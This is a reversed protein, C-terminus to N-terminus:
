GGKKTPKVRLEFVCDLDTVYGSNSAISHKSRVVRYYGGIGLVESAYAGLAARSDVFILDGNRHLGNGYMSITVNQPLFLAQIKSAQNNSEILQEQFYKVNQRSFNFEKAIGRDSGVVYHYVGSCEDEFRDGRRNKHSIRKVFLTYYHHPKTATQIQTLPDLGAKGIKELDSSGLVTKVTKNYSTVVTYDFGVRDTLQTESNLIHSVTKLLDNFFKRFPLVNIKKRVVKNYFFQGFTGLTIPIDYLSVVDQVKGNFINTNGMILSIDDRFEANEMAALLIDGLRMYYFFVEGPQPSPESDPTYNTLASKEKTESTLGSILDAIEKKRERDDIQAVNFLLKVGSSNGSKDSVMLGRRLMSSNEGGIIKRLFGSYLDKLRKGLARERFRDLILQRNRLLTFANTPNGEDDTSLNQMELLQIEAEVLRLAFDLGSLTVNAVGEGRANTRPGINKLYPDQEMGTLVLSAYSDNIDTIVIETPEYFSRIEGRGGLGSNASGFVDSSNTALYNDTSGIYKMSLETVGNQQFNVNYDALNLLITRQTNRVGQIFNEYEGHAVGFGQRDQYNQIFSKKLASESGKPVSWGVVVMLQRFSKKRRAINSTRFKRIATELDAKQLIAKQQNIRESLKTQASKRQQSEQVSKAVGGAASSVQKKDIADETGIKAAKFEEEGSTFLLELYNGSALDAMDGFLLTLDAEIIRDGEHKNNYNWEFNKIGINSGKLSRPTLARDLDGSARLNAMTKYREASSHDSFYVEQKNGSEDVLFFRLLPMLHGLQAPTAHLFSDMGCDEEGHSVKGVYPGSQFDNRLRHLNVFSDPVPDVTGKYSAIVEPMREMLVGQIYRTFANGGQGEKHVNSVTQVGGKPNKGLAAQARENATAAELVAAARQASLLSNEALRRAAAADRGNADSSFASAYEAQADEVSKIDLSKEAQARTMGNRFIPGSWDYGGPKYKKNPDGAGPNNSVPASPRDQSVLPKNTEADQPTSQNVAM